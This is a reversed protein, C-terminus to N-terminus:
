GICWLRNPVIPDASVCEHDPLHKRAGVDRIVIPAVFTTFTCGDEECFVNVLLGKTEDKQGLPCEIITYITDKMVVMANEAIGHIDVLYRTGSSCDILGFHIGLGSCTSPRFSLASYYAYIGDETVREAKGSWSFDPQMLSLPAWRCGPRQLRPKNGFIIGSPILHSYTLLLSLMRTEPDMELIPQVDIGLLNAICIPEDEGKSTNRANLILLMWLFRYNNTFQEEPMRKPLRMQVLATSVSDYIENLELNAIEARTMNTPSFSEVGQLQRALVKVMANNKDESINQLRELDAKIRSLAM